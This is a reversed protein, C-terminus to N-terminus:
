SIGTRGLFASSYAEATSGIDNRKGDAIVLLGKEKAYKITEMFVTLGYLGYMEYYAVQLKVAPVIDYVADIIRKNFELISECAGKLNEGYLSFAKERIFRPVYEIRPDLGVVSPNKKEKITDILNDIFM